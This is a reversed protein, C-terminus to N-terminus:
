RPTTREANRAAAKAAAASPTTTTSHANHHLRHFFNWVVRARRLQRGTGGCRRCVRHTKPFIWSRTKGTGSCRRCSVFPWTVVTGVYGVTVVALLLVLAIAPHDLPTV